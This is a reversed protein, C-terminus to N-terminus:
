KKLTEILKWIVEIQRDYIGPLHEEQMEKDDYADSGDYWSDDIEEVLKAPIPEKLYPKLEKLLKKATPGYDKRLSKSEINDINDDEFDAFLNLGGVDDVKSKKNVFYEKLIVKKGTQRSISELLTSLNIKKKM